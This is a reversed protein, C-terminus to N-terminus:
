AEVTLEGGGSTSDVMARRDELLDTFPTRMKFEEPIRILLAPNIKSLLKSKTLFYILTDFTKTSFVLSSTVSISSISEGLNRLILVLFCSNIIVGSSFYM